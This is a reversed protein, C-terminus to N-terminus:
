YPGKNKSNYIERIEQEYIDFHHEMVADVYSFVSLKTNKYLPLIKMIREYYEGRLYVTKEQRGTIDAPKIFLSEYDNKSKKRKPEKDAKSLPPKSVSEIEKENEQEEDAETDREIPPKALSAVKNQGTPGTMNMSAIIFDEDIDEEKKKSM